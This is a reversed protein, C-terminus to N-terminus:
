YYQYTVSGSASMSSTYTNTYVIFGLYATPSTVRVWSGGSFYYANGGDVSLGHTRGTTSKVRVYQADSPITFAYGKNEPHASNEGSLNYTYINNENGNRGAFYVTGSGSVTVTQIAKAKAVYTANGTVTVSLTSSTTVLTGASNYWGLFGYSDSDYSATLTAVSGAQYTGQGSVTCGTGSASITYTAVTWHAYVTVNSAGMM